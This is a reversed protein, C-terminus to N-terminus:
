YDEFYNVVFLYCYESFLCLNVKIDVVYVDGGVFVLNIDCFVNM